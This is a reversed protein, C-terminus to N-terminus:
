NGFFRRADAYTPLHATMGGDARIVQGTLYRAEDSALFAVINAIDEPEGLFPTLASDENLKILEEPIAAKLLPTLIMSPAVSNCRIGERGFATAVYETLMNIAAKAVGYCPMKNFASVGYQSSTNIISGGGRKVMEKVAYRCGLMTGRLTIAMTTDWLALPMDVIDTDAAVSEASAYAANNHLIDLGGFIEVALAVAAAVSAEDGIDCIGASATGGAERIESVVKEAAEKNIDTVLVSAGCEALKRACARGIGSGAGTVLAVKNELSFSM